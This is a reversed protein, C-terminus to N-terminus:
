VCSRARPLNINSLVVQSSLRTDEPVSWSQRQKEQKELKKRISSLSNFWEKINNWVKKIASIVDSLARRLNGPESEKEGRVLEVALLRAREQGQKSIM